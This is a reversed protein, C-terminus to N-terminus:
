ICLYTAWACTKLSCICLRWDQLFKIHQSCGQIEEPSSGQIPSSVSWLVHFSRFLSSSPARIGPCKHWIKFYSSWKFCHSRLQKHLDTCLRWEALSTSLILIEGTNIGNTCYKTSKPDWLVAALLRSVVVSVCFITSPLSEFPFLICHYCSSTKSHNNILWFQHNTGHSLFNASGFYRVLWHKRHQAAFSNYVCVTASLNVKSKLCSRITYQVRTTSSFFM